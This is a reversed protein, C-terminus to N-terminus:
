QPSWHSEFGRGGSGCDPARVLQAIAAMTRTRKTPNSGVVDLKSSQHEIRQAVLANHKNAREAPNSGAVGLKTFQHEIRQAVLTKNIIRADGSPSSGGVCPKPPWQEELQAIPINNM